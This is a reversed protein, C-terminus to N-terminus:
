DHSVMRKLNLFRELIRENRSITLNTVNGDREDQCGNSARKGPKSKEWTILQVLSNGSGDSGGTGCRSSLWNRQCYIPEISTRAAAGMIHIVDIKRGTLSTLEDFVQRNNSALSELM